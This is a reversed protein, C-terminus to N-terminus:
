VVHLCWIWSKQFWIRSMYMFSSTYFFCQLWLNFKYATNSILFSFSACNKPKEYMIHKIFERRFFFLSLNLHLIFEHNRMNEQMPSCMKWKIRPIHKSENNFAIYCTSRPSYAARKLIFTGNLLKHKILTKLTKFVNMYM